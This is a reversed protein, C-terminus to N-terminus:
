LGVMNVLGRMVKGTVGKANAAPKARADAPADAPDSVPGPDDAVTSADELGSAHVSLLPADRITWAPPWVLAISALVPEFTVTPPPLTLAARLVAARMRDSLLAVMLAAVMVFVAPAANFRFRAAPLVPRDFELACTALLVSEPTPRANIVVTPDLRVSTLM